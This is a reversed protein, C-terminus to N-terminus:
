TVSRAQWSPSSSESIIERRRHSVQDAARALTVPCQRAAPVAPRHHRNRGALVLRGPPRSCSVALGTRRPLVDASRRCGPDGASEFELHSPEDAPSIEFLWVRHGCPLFFPPSSSPLKETRLVDPRLWWGCFPLALYTAFDAWSDLESGLESTVSFRRALFGDVGETLLSAIRCYLFRRSYGNRALALLLPILLPRIFSLLNPLVAM